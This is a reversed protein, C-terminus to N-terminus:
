QGEKKARRQRPNQGRSRTPRANSANSVPKKWKCLHCHDCNAGDKCGKGKSAYKCAPGCNFPHGQSGFSICLPYQLGKGEEVAAEAEDAAGEVDVIDAWCTKRIESINKVQQMIFDQPLAPMPLVPEPSPTQLRMWPAMPSPSRDKKKAPQRGRQTCPMQVPEEEEEVFEQYAGCKPLGQGTRTPSPDPTRYGRHLSPLGRELLGFVLKMNTLSAPQEQDSPTKSGDTTSDLPEQFDCFKMNMPMHTEPTQSRSRSGEMAAFM